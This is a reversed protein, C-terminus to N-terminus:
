DTRGAGTGERALSCCTRDIVSSDVQEVYGKAGEQDWFGAYDSNIVNEIARQVETWDEHEDV